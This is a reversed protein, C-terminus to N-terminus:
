SRLCAASRSCLDHQLSMFPYLVSRKMCSRLAQRWSTRIRAKGVAAWCFAFIRQSVEDRGPTRYRAQLTTWIKFENTNRYGEAIQEFDLLCRRFNDAHGSRGSDKVENWLSQVEVSQPRVRLYETKVHRSVTNGYEGHPKRMNPRVDDGAPAEGNLRLTQMSHRLRGQFERPSCNFYLDHNSECSCSRAENM